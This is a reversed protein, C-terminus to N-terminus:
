KTARGVQTVAPRQKLLASLEQTMMSFRTKALVPSGTPLVDHLEQV